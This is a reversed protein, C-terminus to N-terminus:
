GGPSSKGPQNGCSSSEGNFWFKSGKGPNSTVGLEGGMLTVLKKTIALGLGTGEIHQSQNKVQQFPQFIGELQDQPIGRGTDEVQFRLLDPVTSAKDYGVKLAVGGKETFKVANGLLNLLIQRLRKEDGRSGRLYTRCQNM